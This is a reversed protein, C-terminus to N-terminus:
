CFVAYLINIEWFIKLFILNIYQLIYMSWHAQIDKNM